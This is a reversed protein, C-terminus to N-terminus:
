KNQEKERERKLLADLVANMEDMKLWKLFALYFSAGLTVSVALVTLPSQGLGGTWSLGAKVALLILLMLLSGGIYKALAPAISQLRVERGRSALTRHMYVAQVITATNSAIVLGEIRNLLKLLTISLIINVVLGIASGRVPTRADKIAYLARTEISVFGYFPMGAACIMLIPVLAQTDSAGFAGREFLAAIIEPALVIL